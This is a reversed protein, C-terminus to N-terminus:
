GGALLAVSRAAAEIAPWIAAASVLVGAWLVAVVRGHWKRLVSIVLCLVAALPTLLLGLMGFLFAAVASADVAEGRQAATLEPGPALASALGAVGSVISPVCLWLTLRPM